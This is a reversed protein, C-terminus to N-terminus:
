GEDDDRGAGRVPSTEGGEEKKRGLQSARKVVPM